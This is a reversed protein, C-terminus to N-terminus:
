LTQKAKRIKLSRQFRTLSQKATQKNRHTYYLSKISLTM